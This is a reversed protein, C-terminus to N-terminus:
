LNLKKRISAIRSEHERLVERRWKDSQKWDVKNCWVTISHGWMNLAEELVETLELNENHLKEFVEGTLKYTPEKLKKVTTM